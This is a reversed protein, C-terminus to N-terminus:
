SIVVMGPSKRTRVRFLRYSGLAHDQQLGLADILADFSVPFGEPAGDPMLSELDFSRIHDQGEAASKAEEIQSRTEPSDVFGLM